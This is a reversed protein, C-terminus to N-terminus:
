DAQSAIVLDPKLRTVTAAVKESEQLDKSIAATSKDLEWLKIVKVNKVQKTLLEAVCTLYKDGNMKENWRLLVTKGELTKPHANIVVPGVVPVKEKAALAPSGGLIGGFFFVSLVTVFLLWKRRQM